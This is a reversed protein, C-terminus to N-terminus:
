STKEGINKIGTKKDVALKVRSYSGFGVSIHNDGYGKLLECQSLLIM